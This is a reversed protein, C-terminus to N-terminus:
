EVTSATRVNFKESCTQDASSETILYCSYETDPLLGTVVGSEQSFPINEDADGVPSADCADDLDVCKLTYTAPPNGSGGSADDWTARISTLRGTMQINTPPVFPVADTLIDLGTSCTKCYKNTAVVYCTYYTYPILDTVIGEQVGAAIDDSKAAAPGTCKAGKDVCKLFYTHPRFATSPASDIWKAEWTTTTTDVTALQSPAAPYFKSFFNSIQLKLGNNDRTNYLSLSLSTTPSPSLHYFNVLYSEGQKL